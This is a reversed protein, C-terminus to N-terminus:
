TVGTSDRSKQWDCSVLCLSAIYCVSL